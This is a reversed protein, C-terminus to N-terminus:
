TSQFSLLARLGKPSFAAGPEPKTGPEIMIHDGLVAGTVQAQAGVLCDNAIACGRVSARPGVTVRDWLVSDIVTAGRGVRCRSGMVLPGTLAAGPEVACGDGM